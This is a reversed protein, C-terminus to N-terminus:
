IDGRGALRCGSYNGKKPSRGKKQCQEKKKGKRIGAKSRSPPALLICNSLISMWRENYGCVTLILIYRLNFHYQSLPHTFPTLSNCILLCLMSGLVSLSPEEYKQQNTCHVHLKYHMMVCLSVQYSYVTFM